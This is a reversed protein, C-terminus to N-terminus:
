PWGKMLRYARESARRGAQRHTEALVERAQNKEPKLRGAPDNEFELLNLGRLCDSPDNRASGRGCYARGLLLRDRPLATPRDLAQQARDIASSYRAIAGERDGLNQLTQALAREITAQLYAQDRDDDLTSVVVIALEFREKAQGHRGLASLVLGEIKLALVFAGVEEPRIPKRSKDDWDYFSRAAWAKELAETLRGSRMLWDAQNYDIRQSLAPGRPDASGIQRLEGCTQRAQEFYEGAKASRGEQDDLEAHILQCKALELLWNRANLQGEDTKEFVRGAELVAISKDLALQASETQDSIMSLFKGQKQLIRAYELHISKDSKLNEAYDHYLDAGDRYLKICLRESGPFEKQLQDALSILLSSLTSGTKDVLGRYAVESRVAEDKALGLRYSYIGLISFATVAVVSAGIFASRHHRAFRALRISAPDPHVPVPEDALWRKVDDAMASASAYRDEPQYRLAKRAIAALPPPILASRAPFDNYEGNQINRILVNKSIGKYPSRGTLICYLVAGLSYIDSRHDVRGQDGRAVEPSMYGFTGLFSEPHTLLDGNLDIPADPSGSSSGSASAPTSASTPNEGSEEVRLRKTLGWDMVLTENYQDIRINSPKLDRHLIQRLSAYAITNCVSVFRTLLARLGLSREGTSKWGGDQDTRHFANIDDQLDRGDVYRMTYSARGASNVWLSHVPVIGPHDFSAM